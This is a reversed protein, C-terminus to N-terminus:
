AHEPDFTRLRPNSGDADAVQVADVNMFGNMYNAFLSVKDLIPQYVLGFKPSFATQGKTDDSSYQSIRGTFHDVRLSAMASFSPSLNIVDSFYASYVENKSSLNSMPSALLLNDVGAPSLVGTDTQTLLDVVGNGVYGTSGNLLNSTYYDLG